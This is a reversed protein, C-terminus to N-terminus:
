IVAGRRQLGGAVDSIPRKPGSVQFARDATLRSRCLWFAEIEELALARDRLEWGATPDAIARSETSTSDLGGLHIM